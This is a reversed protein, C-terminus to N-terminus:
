QQRQETDDLSSFATDENITDVNALNTQMITLM